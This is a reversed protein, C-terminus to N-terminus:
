RPQDAEVPRCCEPLPAPLPQWPLCPSGRLLTLIGLLVLAPGLARAALPRWTEPLFRWGSGALLLAPATALGFTFAGAAAISAHGTQLALLIASASLGCPLLGGVLGLAFSGAQGPLARAGRRVAELPRLLLSSVRAAFAPPRPRFGCARVGIWVIGLGAALALVGRVTGFSAAGSHRALGGLRAAVLALVAYSLAKGLVFALQRAIVRRRSARSAPELAVLFGGCMAACHLAGFLALLAFPALEALM